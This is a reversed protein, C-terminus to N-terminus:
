HLKHVKYKCANWTLFVTPSEPRQQQTSEVELHIFSSFAHCSRVRPQEIFLSLPFAESQKSYYIDIRPKPLSPRYNKSNSFRSLPDTCLNFTISQCRPRLSVTCSCLRTTNPPPFRVGHVRAYEHRNLFQVSQM